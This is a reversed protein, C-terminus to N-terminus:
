PQRASQEGFDFWCSRAKAAKKLDPHPHGKQFDFVLLLSMRRAGQATTQAERPQPSGSSAFSKEPNM